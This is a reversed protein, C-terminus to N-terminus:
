KLSWSCNSDHLESGEQRNGSCLSGETQPYIPGSADWLASAGVVPPRWWVVTTQGTRTLKSGSYQICRSEAKACIDFQQMCTVHTEENNECLRGHQISTPRCLDLLSVGPGWLPCGLNWWVLVLLLVQVIVPNKDWSILFNHQKMDSSYKQHEWKGM